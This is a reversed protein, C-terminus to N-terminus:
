RRRRLVLALGGLGMLATSSPEPVPVVALNWNDIGVDSSGGGATRKSSMTFSLTKGADAALATYNISYSNGANSAIGGGTAGVVVGDVLFNIDTQGFSSSSQYVNTSFTYQEGADITGIFDFRVLSVPPGGDNGDVFIAGDAAGDGADTDNSIVGGSVTFSYAAPVVGAGTFNESVASIAANSTGAATLLLGAICHPSLSHIILKKMM